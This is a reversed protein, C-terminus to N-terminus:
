AAGRAAAPAYHGMRRARGVNAPPVHRRQHAAPAAPAPPPLRGLLEQFKAELQTTFSTELGDIKDAQEAFRAEIDQAQGVFLQNFRAHLEKSTLNEPDVSDTSSPTGTM